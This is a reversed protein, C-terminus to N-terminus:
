RLRDNGFDELTDTFESCNNFRRGHTLRRPWAGKGGLVLLTGADKCAREIRATHGALTGADGSYSSAFIAAVAPKLTKIADALVATPTQAGIWKTAWGAERACLEIFSLGLTHDDGEVAALLCSPWPPATPLMAGVIALAQELDHTAIHETPVDCYGRRCRDDIEEAVTGLMDAVRWWSGLLSRAELLAPQLRVPNAEFLLLELLRAEHDPPEERLGSRFRALEARDFRRHGGPTLVYRLGGRDDAWRKLTSTSVGLLRAAKTSTVLEM